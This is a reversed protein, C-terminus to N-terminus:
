MIRIGSIIRYVPKAPTLEEELILVYYAESRDYNNGNM